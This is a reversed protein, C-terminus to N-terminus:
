RRRFEARKLAAFLRAANRPSRLLYLTEFLSALEDAAVLAVDPGTPRKIIVVNRSSAVANCLEGFNAQAEKLTRVHKTKMATWRLQKNRWRSSRSSIWRCM